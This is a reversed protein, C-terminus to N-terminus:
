FSSVANQTEVIQARTRGIINAVVETHIPLVLFILASLFAFAKNDFIRRLLKFLFFCTLGYLILNVLHFGFPATGFIFYNLSYSYITVPRYLGADETLYPMLFIKKIEFPNSLVAYHDVVGRDDFVFDGWLTRGYIAVILVFFIALVWATKTYFKRWSVKPTSGGPLAEATETVIETKNEQEM